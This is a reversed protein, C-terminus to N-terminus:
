SNTTIFKFIVFSQILIEIVIQYKSEFIQSHAEPNVTLNSENDEVTGWIKKRATERFM